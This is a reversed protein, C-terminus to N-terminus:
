GVAPTVTTALVTAVPAQMLLRDLAERACGADLVGAPLYAVLWARNAGERVKVRESDTIPTGFPGDGDALLPKGHLEYPGRMSLMTEGDRGARLVFPPTASGLAMVCGPVVLEVSLCNNVDVLTHIASLEEGKLVRRLLAESSPRHRTPDCGAQRFLKRLAAVTPHASLAELTHSARARAGVETRLGALMGESGAQLELDAWFLTWGPLEHRVDLRLEQMALGAM